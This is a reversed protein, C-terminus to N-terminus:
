RRESTYSLIGREVDAWDKKSYGSKGRKFWEKALKLAEKKEKLTLDRIKDLDKKAEAYSGYHSLNARWSQTQWGKDTICAVRQLRGKKGVDQTGYTGTCKKPSIRRMRLQQGKIEFKM